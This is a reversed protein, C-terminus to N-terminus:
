PSYPAAANTVAVIAVVLTVPVVYVGLILWLLLKPRVARLRDAIYADRAVPTLAPDSGARREFDRAYRDKLHARFFQWVLVFLVTLFLLLVALPRILFM